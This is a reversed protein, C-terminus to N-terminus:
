NRGTRQRRLVGERKRRAPSYSERFAPLRRGHQPAQYASDIIDAYQFYLLPYLLTLKLHLPLGATAV